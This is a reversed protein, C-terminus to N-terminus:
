VFTAVLTTSSKKTIEQNRKKVQERPKQRTKFFFTKDHNLLGDVSGISASAKNIEPTSM